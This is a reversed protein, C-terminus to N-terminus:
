VNSNELNMQALFGRANHLTKLTISIPRHSPLEVPTALGQALLDQGIEEPVSILQGSEFPGMDNIFGGQLFVIKM